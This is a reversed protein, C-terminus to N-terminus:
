SHEHEAQKRAWRGVRDTTAQMLEGVQCRSDFWIDEPQLPNLFAPLTAGEVYKCDGWPSRPSNFAFVDEDYTYYFRDFAGINRSKYRDTFIQDVTGRTLEFVYTGEFSVVIEESHRWPLRLGIFSIVSDHLRRIFGM